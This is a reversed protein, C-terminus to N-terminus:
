VHLCYYTLKLHLGRYCPRGSSHFKSSWFNARQATRPDNAKILKHFASPSFFTYEHWKKQLRRKNCLVLWCGNITLMTSVCDWSQKKPDSWEKGFMELNWSLPEERRSCHLLTSRTIGKDSWKSIYKRWYWAIVSYVPTHKTLHRLCPSIVQFLNYFFRNFSTTNNLKLLSTWPLAHSNGEHIQFTTPFSILM